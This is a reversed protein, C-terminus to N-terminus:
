GHICGIKGYSGRRITKYVCWKPLMRPHKQARRLIEGLLEACRETENANYIAYGDFYKGTWAMSLRDEFDTQLPLCDCDFYATMPYKSLYWWRVLDSHLDHRDTRQWVENFHKNERAEAVLRRLRKGELCEYNKFLREVMKM